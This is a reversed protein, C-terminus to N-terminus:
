TLERASSLFAARAEGFDSGPHVPHIRNTLLIYTRGEGPEMWLGTGTYGEHGMSGEPLEAGAIWGPHGAVKWGATRFGPSATWARLRARKSLLKSGDRFAGALREVAELGGFLGANGAVGGLFRANGDNVQGWGAPGRWPPLMAGNQRAKEAENFPGRETAATEQRLDEPPRFCAAKPSLGLPGAIREAFLADLPCQLIEELLFGLLIYGLCSYEAREGPARRPCRELLWRRAGAPDDAFAYVPMWAPFGAEHRLLQIYTFPEGAVAATLDIEGRDEAQLALLATALPKTLSALDFLTNDFVALRQPDLVAFGRHGGALRQGLGTSVSWALGPAQSPCLGSLVKELRTGRPELRTGGLRGHM